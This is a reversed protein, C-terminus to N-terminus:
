DPVVIGSKTKRLGTMPDRNRDSLLLGRESDLTNEAQEVLIYVAKLDYEPNMTTKIGRCFVNGSPAGIIVLVGEQTKWSKGGLMITTGDTPLCTHEWKVPWDIKDLGGLCYEALKRRYTFRRDRNSGLDTKEDDSVRKAEKKERSRDEHVFEPGGPKDVEQYYDDLEGAEKKKAREQEIRTSGKKIM